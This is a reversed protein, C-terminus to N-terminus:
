YAIVYVFLQMYLHPFISTGYKGTVEGWLTVVQTIIKKLSM